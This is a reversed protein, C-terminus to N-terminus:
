VKGQLVQQCPDPTINKMLATTADPDPVKTDLRRIRGHHRVVPPQGVTIHLDSAKIQIVTALLKDILVSGTGPRVPGGTVSCPVARVVGGRNPRRRVRPPM